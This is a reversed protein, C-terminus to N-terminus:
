KNNRVFGLLSDVKRVTIKEKTGEPLIAKIKNFVDAAKLSEGERILERIQKTYKRALRGRFVNRTTLLSELRMREEESWNSKRAEEMLSQQSPTLREPDREYRTIQPGYKSIKDFQNEKDLSIKDIKRKKDNSRLIQLAEGTLLIDLANAQSSNSYFTFQKKDNTFEIRSFIITEPSQQIKQQDVVGWKRLPIRDIATLSMNSSNEYFDKLDAMYQDDTSVNAERELKLYEGTALSTDMDYIGKYDIPNIPEGL